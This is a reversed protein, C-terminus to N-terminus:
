VLRAASPLLTAAQDADSILNVIVHVDVQENGLAVVDPEDAGLLSLTDTDYVADRFLYEAPTNGAFPAYLALVRFDPPSKVARRRILPQIQAARAYAAKAADLDGAKQRIGGIWYLSEADDPNVAIAQEFHRTAADTDNLEFCAKGLQHQVPGDQPREEALESLLAKAIIYQRTALLAQALNTRSPWHAPNVRLAQLYFAIADQPKGTQLQINGLNCWCVALQPALRLAAKYSAGAADLRGCLMYANGLKAHLEAILEPACGSPNESAADLGRQYAAIADDIRGAAQHEVGCALHQVALSRAIEATSVATFASTTVSSVRPIFGPQGHRTVTFFGKWSARDRRGDSKINRLRM